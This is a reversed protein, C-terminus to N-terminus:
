SNYNTDIYQQLIIAAATEDILEKKGRLKTGGERYSRKASISTLTVQM